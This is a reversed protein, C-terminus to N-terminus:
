LRLEIALMKIVEIDRKMKKQDVEVKTNQNFQIGNECAWSIKNLLAYMTVLARQELTLDLEDMIANTYLDGYPTGYWSLKIRGLAELPDGQTLGDLDVLGSFIGNHIMVNKSCIDGYYTTPTISDFYSSYRKYLNDALAEMDSDMVGTKKGREKSEEIWIQMRETWSDSVEDDGGGWIVGFKDSSPITKVMKFIHAVEQALTKLQENSLSEIVEGLDQGQIKTQIQYSLPISSKSYDEALIEPVKIGLVKFKPIHDHSGMLFRNYLSLRVIVEKENLGVEYVENCIGIVMRRIFKPHEKFHNAIITEIMKEHSLEIKEISFNKFVPFVDIYKSQPWIKRLHSLLYNSAERFKPLYGTSKSCAIFSDLRSLIRSRFGNEKPDWESDSDLPGSPCIWEREVDMTSITRILWYACAYTLQKNYVSDDIAAPIGKKLEERYAAEMKHLIPQPVAKSCWCSPMSMRLYVGDILANGFDGFEFDILKIERGQYYVNDPCIDGHLLVHFDGQTKSFEFVEQIEQSLKKSEFGVLRKFQNVMDSVNVETLFNFRHAQPYIRNLIKTFQQSKGLTDVQMKGVRRVYAILASEAEQINTITSSRTLPGVLSPHSFGLDEILIFKHKISGAYFHPAHDCGIETLFEIGAWDHAFRSLKEIETETKTADFKNTETANQKLIVTKPMGEQPKEILLRLLVNRRGPESLQIVKSFTAPKKFYITMLNSADDIMERLHKTSEDLM